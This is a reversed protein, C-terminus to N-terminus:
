RRAGTLHGYHNPILNKELNLRQYATKSLGILPICVAVGGACVWNMWRFDSMPFMFIVDFVLMVANGLLLGVGVSTGEGVPFVCEM